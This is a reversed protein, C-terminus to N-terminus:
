PQQRVTRMPVRVPLLTSERFEFGHAHREHGEPLNLRSVAAAAVVGAVSLVLFGPLYSGQTWQLGYGFALPFLMGGVNGAAGVVGAISGTHSPSVTPVVAFVAGESSQVFLSTLLVALIATPFTAVFGLLLYSAMMGTLLIFLVGKHGFRDALWGGGPRAFINSGGFIAAFVGASVLSIDFKDYFYKPLFSVVCLESGFCALYAVALIMVRRDSFVNYSSEKPTRRFVSGAPVDSVGNWFAISWILMPFASILAATRWGFTLAIAPLMLAALASGANGCGAYIGEALGLQQRPFWDGVLRIGIVFGCGVLGIILRLLLFTFFSHTFALLAVPVSMVALLLSYTRRPGLADVLRGILIRGPITLVVGATALWGLQADSLALDKQILPALPAFAFWAFFTFCFAIWSFHLIRWRHSVPFPMM